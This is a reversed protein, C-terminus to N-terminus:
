KALKEMILRLAEEDDATNTGCLSTRTKWIQEALALYSEAMGNTPQKPKPAGLDKEATAVLETAPDTALQPHNTICQALDASAMQVIRLSRDFKEQASVWRVTPDISSLLDALDLQQKVKPDNGDRTLANAFANHAAHFDGLDLEAQGLGAWNAADKSNSRILQHYIDAARAPSGAVLFLRAIRPQLKPDKQVQEELPLLEALIEDQKGHAILFDILELRVSIQHQALHDPWEGYIARHYYSDAAAIQARKAALRAAVLNVEANNSEDALMDSMLPQAEALKGSAMLAQILDLTYKVNDRELAHAKRFFDLSDMARRQNLLKEGNQDARLAQAALEAQETKELSVDIAALAAIVGAVALTLRVVPIHREGVAANPLSRAASM